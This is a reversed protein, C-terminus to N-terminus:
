LTRFEIGADRMQLATNTKLPDDGDFAADLCIFRGPQPELAAVAKVTRDNITEALHVVLLGDAVSYATQGALDVPRVGATLPLDLGAKLLVEYLIDEETRGPVVNEAFAELQAALGAEDTPANEADWVKFNSSTLRFSRFGRDQKATSGNSEPLRGEDEANLKQIVRRIRERGIDAITPYDPNNTKEPLQVMIFRRDGGDERNMELVAHATTASGAFFDLVIDPEQRERGAILKLMRKFLKIPKPTDFPSAGSFLAKTELTAEKNHGAFDFSWWTNPTTGKSSESLFAKLMPRGTGSKGFWIRNDDIWKNYQTESCRWYRGPPPNVDKGAPTTITFQGAMYPKSASLDQARWVGRPDEDPNKYDSLQQATREIKSLSVNERQRAYLLVHDHMDSMWQATVNSVYRKQWVINAIFNEEGFIEDMMLRLNHVEHDDISIFIVGDERLLNRALFLRPYIMNLWRSHLRGATETTTSLKAGNEDTQGSYRLYDEIGERFNDPYIFENGTNYPPDIYIMKVRGHYGKQLLKLVELNDGEIFVNETEDFAM